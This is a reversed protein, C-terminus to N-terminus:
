PKAAAAGNAPAGCEGPPREDLADRLKALEAEPGRLDVAVHQEIGSKPGSRAAKLGKARLSDLHSKAAAETSFVGLSVALRNPGADQIVFYEPVELQKLEAVRRDLEAKGAAPPIFVWWAKATTSEIRRILRTSPARVSALKALRDAEAGILNSWAVCAEPVAPATAVATAAPASAEIAPAEGRAVIRLKEPKLQQAIRGEDPTPPAGFYGQTWTFFLLNALVLLFVLVRM